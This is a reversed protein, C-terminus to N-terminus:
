KASTITDNDSVFNEILALIYRNRYQSTSSDSVIVIKNIGQAVLSEHCLRLSAWTGAAKHTIENSITCISSTEHPKWIVMSHLAINKDFFWSSQTQMSQKVQFNTLWDLHLVAKGASTCRM